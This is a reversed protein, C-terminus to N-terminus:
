ETPMLAKVRPESLSPQQPSPKPQGQRLHAIRRRVFEVHDRLTYLDPAFQDPVSIRWVKQEILDLEKEKREIFEPTAANKALDRELHKLARYWRLIRQRMRWNYFGPVIRFLPFIIGVVPLLLIFARDFLTAVWFPLVRQFFTPGSKYIRRVDDSAPFEPDDSLAERGLTFLKAEGTPKLAPQSQVALVADALLTRLAPHLDDRILLMAKTAVLSTDAPPINKAFDVVGQRLIVASLSPYRQILAEAQAMNMLKVDPQRLLKQVTKADTGLVLFGADASSNSLADPYAPLEMAILKSNEPTIGNAELLKKALSSTGSGEPGILIRKGKLQTIHDINQAGRYFIWVPETLLRGMSLLQPSDIHNSLGGQVIGAQVDANGDKLAKLNDFSGQLERVELKVGKKEVQEKFRMALDYYPSGASAASIVFSSPPAPKVYRLAFWVAAVCILVAPIFLALYELSFFRKM